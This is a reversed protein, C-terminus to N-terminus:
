ATRQYGCFGARQELCDVAAEHAEYLAGGSLASRMIYYPYGREQLLAVWFDRSTERQDGGYRLPDPVFEAADSLVIYLDAPEHLQEIKQWVENLDQEAQEKESGRMWSVFGPRLTDDGARQRCWHLQYGLTSMLDTDLFVFPCGRDEALDEAARQAAHQGRVIAMMREQTVEPTPLSELYPRAWEPCWVSGTASALQRALTTKGVSEQGFLVIRRRLRTRLPPILHRFHTTLDTRVQTARAGSIDRAADCPIHEAGLEAALRSGYSESSFVHTAGRAHVSVVARWHDWFASDDPGDPEQPDAGVHLEVRTRPLGRVAERLADRHETRGAPEGPTACMLVLLEGDLCSMYRSAHRILTLHGETPPLATMMILGLPTSRM